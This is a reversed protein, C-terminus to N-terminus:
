MLVFWDHTQNFGGEPIELYAGTVYLDARLAKAVKKAAKSDAEGSQEAGQGQALEQGAGPEGGPMADQTQAM